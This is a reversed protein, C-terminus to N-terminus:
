HREHSQRSLERRFAEGPTATMFGGGRLLREWFGAVNIFLRQASLRRTGITIQIDMIGDGPRLGAGTLEIVPM